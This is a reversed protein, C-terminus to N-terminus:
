FPSIGDLFKNVEASYGAVKATTDKTFYNIVVALINEVDDLTIIGSADRTITLNVVSEGWKGTTADYRRTKGSLLHRGAANGSALTHKTEFAQTFTATNAIVRGSQNLGSFGVPAITVDVANSDKITLSM